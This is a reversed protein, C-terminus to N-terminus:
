IYDAYVHRPTGDEGEVNYISWKEYELIEVYERLQAVLVKCIKINQHLEPFVTYFCVQM